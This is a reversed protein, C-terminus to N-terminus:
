VQSYTDWNVNYLYSGMMILFLKRQNSEGWVRRMGTINPHPGANPFSEIRSKLSPSISSKKAYKVPYVKNKM